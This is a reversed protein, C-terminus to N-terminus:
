NFVVIVGSDVGVLDSTVVFDGLDKVIGIAEVFWRGGVVANEARSWGGIGFVHVDTFDSGCSVKGDM